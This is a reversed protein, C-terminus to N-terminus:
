VPVGGCGGIGYNASFYGAPPPRMTAPPFKAESPMRSIAELPFYKRISIASSANNGTSVKGTFADSFLKLHFTNKLALPPSHQWQFCQSQSSRSSTVTSFQKWQFTNKEQCTYQANNGGSVNGIWRRVMAAVSITEM